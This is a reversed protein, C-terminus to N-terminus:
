PCPPRRSNQDAHNKGCSKKKLLKQLKKKAQKSPESAERSMAHVLSMTPCDTASTYVIEVRKMRSTNLLAQKFAKTLAPPWRKEKANLKGNKLWEIITTCDLHIIVDNEDPLNSLAQAVAMLEAVNSGQKHNRQLGPLTALDDALGANTALAWAIGLTSYDPRFSGDCWIETRLEM